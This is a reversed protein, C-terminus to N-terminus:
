NHSIKLFLASITIYLKYPCSEDHGILLATDCSVFLFFLTDNIRRKTQSNHFSLRHNKKIRM